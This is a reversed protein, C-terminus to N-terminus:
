VLIKYFYKELTLLMENVSNVDSPTFPTNCSHYWLELQAPEAFLVTLVFCLSLHESYTYNWNFKTKTSSIPRFQNQQWPHLSKALNHTIDSTLLWLPEFLSFRSTLPRQTCDGSSMAIYILRTLSDVGGKNKAMTPKIKVSSQVLTM